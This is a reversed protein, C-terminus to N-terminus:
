SIRKADVSVTFNDQNTVNVTNVLYKDEELQITIERKIEAAKGLLRALWILAWGDPLVGAQQLQNAASTLSSGQMLSFEFPQTPLILPRTVQYGAFAAFLMALLLMWGLLKKILRM